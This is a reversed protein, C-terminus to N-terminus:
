VQCSLERRLEASSRVSTQKMKNEQEGRKIFTVSSSVFTSQIGSPPSQHVPEAKGTAAGSRPQAGWTQRFINHFDHLFYMCSNGSRFHQWHVSATNRLVLKNARYRDNAPSALKRWCIRSYFKICDGKYGLLREWAEWHWQPLRSPVFRQAPPKDCTFM